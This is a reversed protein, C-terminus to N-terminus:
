KYLTKTLLVQQPKPKMCLGKGAYNGNCKKSGISKFLKVAFYRKQLGVIKEALYVISMNGEGLVKKAKYSALVQQNEDMIPKPKITHKPLETKKEKNIIKSILRKIKEIEFPKTIYDVVGQKFCYVATDVRPNGTIVVIPIASKLDRIQQLLENGSTAPMYIDSIVLDLPEKAIIRLGDNCDKATIVDIDKDSSYMSVFLERVFKEDDIVLIKKPLQM